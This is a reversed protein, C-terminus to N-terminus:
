IANYIPVLSRHYQIIFSKKVSLVTQKKASQQQRNKRLHNENFAFLQSFKCPLRIKTCFYFFYYM